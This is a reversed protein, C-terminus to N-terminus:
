LRYGPGFVRGLGDREDDAVLVIRGPGHPCPKCQCHSGGGCLFDQDWEILRFRPSLDQRLRWAAQHRGQDVTGDLDPIRQGDDLIQVVDIWLGPEPRRVQPGSSDRAGDAGFHM